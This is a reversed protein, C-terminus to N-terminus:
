SSWKRERHLSSTHPTLFPHASVIVTNEFQQLGSALFPTKVCNNTSNSSSEERHTRIAEQWDNPGNMVVNKASSLGGEVGSQESISVDKKDPYAEM